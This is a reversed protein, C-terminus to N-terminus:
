PDLLGARRAAIVAELRTHVRLAAMLAAIHNRVTRPSLVLDAAIQETSRGQGLLQLVERQRPTLEVGSAKTPPSAPLASPRPAVGFLGVICGGKRVAAASVERLSYGGSANRVSLTFEAPRGGSLMRTIAAEIRAREDPRALSAFMEGVASGSDDVAARNQWRVVGDRDLLAAPVRIDELATTVAGGLVSLVHELDPHDSAGM